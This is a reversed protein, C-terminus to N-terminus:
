HVLVSAVVLVGFLGMSPVLLMLIKKQEKETKRIVSLREHSFQVRSYLTAFGLAPVYRQLFSQIAKISRSVQSRNGFRLEHYNEQAMDTMAQVDPRRHETYRKVVGPPCFSKATKDDCPLKANAPDIFDEFFVRVDELGTIMGMGYFPTMSHSSDGLLVASDKYGFTGCKMSKLSIHQHDTFQRTVDRGSLLDPVIGPYRSRFWSEIKEPHEGLDLSTKTPVVM